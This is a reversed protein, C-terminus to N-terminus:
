RLGIKSNVKQLFNFKDEEEEDHSVFLPHQILRRRGKDWKM